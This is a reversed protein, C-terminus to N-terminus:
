GFVMASRQSELSHPFLRAEQAYHVQLWDVNLGISKRVEEITKNQIVKLNLKSLDYGFRNGCHAAIRFVRLDEESLKYPHPYLMSSVKCFLKVKWDTMKGTSGMTFGVVFAEDKPLLGRGLLAHITDHVDMTVAGPFPIGNMLSFSPNEVIKVIHPAKTQTGDNNLQNLQELAAKITIQDDSLPLHWRTYKKMQM